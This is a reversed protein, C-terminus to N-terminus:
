GSRFPSIIMFELSIACKNTSFHIHTRMVLCVYIASSLINIYSLAREFYQVFKRVQVVRLSVNKM